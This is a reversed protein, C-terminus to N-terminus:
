STVNRFVTTLYKGTRRDLLATVLTLPAMGITLRGGTLAPVGYNLNKPNSQDLSWRSGTFKRFVEGVYRAAGDHFATETAPRIQQPSEYKSLTWSEVADLSEPSFDLKSAIDPPASAVFRDLAADMEFLWLQFQDQADGTVM